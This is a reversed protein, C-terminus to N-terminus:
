EGEDARMATALEADSSGRRIARLYGAYVISAPLTLLLLAEFAGAWFSPPLLFDEVLSDIRRLVRPPNYMVELAMLLPLGTFPFAYCVLSLPSRRCLYGSVACLLVISPWLFCGAMSTIATLAASIASTVITLLLAVVHRM